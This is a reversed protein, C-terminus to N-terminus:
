SRKLTWEDLRGGLCVFNSARGIIRATVARRSVEGDKSKAFRLFDFLCRFIEVRSWRRAAAELPWGRRRRGLFLRRM